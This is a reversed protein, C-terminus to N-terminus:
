KVPSRFMQDPALGPLLFNSWSRSKPDFCKVLLPVLTHSFKVPVWSWSGDIEIAGSYIISVNSQSRSAPLLVNSRSRFRPAFCKVALPVQSCFMQGRASGPLSINSWSCFRPAFYKVMLLVQFHSMQSHATNQTEM